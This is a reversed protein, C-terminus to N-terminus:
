SFKNRSSNPMNIVTTRSNVFDVCERKRRKFVFCKRLSFFIWLLWGLSHVNRLFYMKTHKFSWLPFMITQITMINKPINKMLNVHEFRSVFLFHKQLNLASLGWFHIIRTKKLCKNEMLHAGNGKFIPFSKLMLSKFPLFVQVLSKKRKYVM